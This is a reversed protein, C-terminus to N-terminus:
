HQPVSIESVIEEGTYVLTSFAKSMDEVFTHGIEHVASVDGYLFHHKYAPFGVLCLYSSDAYQLSGTEILEQSPTVSALECASIYQDCMDEISFKTIDIFTALYNMFEVFDTTPTRDNNKLYAFLDNCLWLNIYLAQIAREFDYVRSRRSVAGDTIEDLIDIAARIPASEQNQLFVSSLTESLTAFTQTYKPVARGQDYLASLLEPNEQVYRSLADKLYVPINPNNFPSNSKSAHPESDSSFSPSPKSIDFVDDDDYSM